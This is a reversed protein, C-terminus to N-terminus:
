ECTIDHSDSSHCDNFEGFGDPSQSRQETSQVQHHEPNVETNKSTEPIDRFRPTFRHPSGFRADFFCHGFRYYRCSAQEHHSEPSISHRGPTFPFPAAGRSPSLQRWQGTSASVTRFRWPNCRHRIPNGTGQEAILVCQPTERDLWRPCSEANSVIAALPQNVEHAISSTLEGL